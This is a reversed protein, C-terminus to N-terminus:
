GDGTANPRSLIHSVAYKLIPYTRQALDPKYVREGFKHLDKGWPGINIVPMSLNIDGQFVNGYYKDWFPMNSGIVSVAETCDHFSAFSMDSIQMYYNLKKYSEGWRQTTFSNIAKSLSAVSGPLSPYDRNARHPYYPPLFALVVFPSRDSLYELVKEILRYSGEQIGIQANCIQSDIQEFTKQYDNLFRQGSEDTAATFIESFTRIQVTWSTLQETGVGMSTYTKQRDKITQVVHRCAKEITQTLQTLITAPRRYLSILSFCGAAAHPISGEYVTQRDSLFMWTPPPAVENEVVDCFDTNLETQKVIESFLMLPNFGAFVNGVHAAKGRVYVLGLLKGASGEYLVGQQDEGRQHTESDILLHYGLGFKQALSEMLPVSNLMGLSMYEEGPVSLYLLNGVLNQKTSYEATLTMQLAVGAKMDATGRGFVWDGSKLDRTMESPLKIGALKDILKEPHHAFPALAGFSNAHVTDHHNVLVVTQAGKGKVLAWVISRHLPDDALSQTGFHGPNRQFYAQHSFWSFMYDEIDKERHTETDSRIEVLEYFLSMIADTFNSGSM